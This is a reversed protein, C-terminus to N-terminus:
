PEYRVALIVIGYSALAELPTLIFLFPITVWFAACVQCRTVDHLWHISRLKTFIGFPGDYHCVLSSVAYICIASLFIDIM